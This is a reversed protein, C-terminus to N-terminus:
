ILMIDTDFLVQFLSAFTRKTQHLSSKTIVARIAWTACDMPIVFATCRQCDSICYLFVSKAKLSPQLCLGHIGSVQSLGSVAICSNGDFIASCNVVKDLCSFEPVNKGQVSTGDRGIGSKDRFDGDLPLYM